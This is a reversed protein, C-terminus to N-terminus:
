GEISAASNASTGAYILPGYQSPRAVLTGNVGTRGPRWRDVVSLAVADM